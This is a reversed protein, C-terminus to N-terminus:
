KQVHVAGGLEELRPSKPRFRLCIDNCNDNLRRNPGARHFPRRNRRPLLVAARKCSRRACHNADDIGREARNSVGTARTRCYPITPRSVAPIPLLLRRFATPATAPNLTIKKHTKTRQREFRSFRVFFMTIGMPSSIEVRAITWATPATAPITPAPAEGPPPKSSRRSRKRHLFPLCNWPCSKLAGQFKLTFTEANESLIAHKGEFSPFIVPFM